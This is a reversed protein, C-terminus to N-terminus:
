GSDGATLWKRMQTGNQPPHEPDWMDQRYGCKEYFDIAWRAAITCTQDCGRARAYEGALTLMARGHGHGQYAPVVGVTRM